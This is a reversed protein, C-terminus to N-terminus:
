PQRGMAKLLAARILMLEELAQAMMEATQEPQAARIEDLQARLSATQALLRALQREEAAPRRSQRSAAQDFMAKTLFACTSLGSKEVRAAFEERLEAPPRYSIPAERKKGTRKSM